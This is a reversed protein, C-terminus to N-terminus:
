FTRLYVDAESLAKPLVFLHTVTCYEVPISWRHWDAKRMHVARGTQVIQAEQEHGGSVMRTWSFHGLLGVIVGCGNLGSKAIRGVVRLM